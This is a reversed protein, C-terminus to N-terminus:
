QQKALQPILLHLSCLSRDPNYASCPCAEELSPKPATDRKSSRHAQLAVRSGAEKGRESRGGRRRRM